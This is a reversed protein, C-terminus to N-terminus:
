MPAFFNLYSGFVASGREDLICHFLYYQADCQCDGSRERPCLNSFGGWCRRRSLPAACDRLKRRAARNNELFTASRSMIAEAFLDSIHGPATLFEVLCRYSGADLHPHRHVNM